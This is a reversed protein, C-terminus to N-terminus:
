WIIFFVLRKAQWTWIRYAYRGTIVALGLALLGGLFTGGHPLAFLGGLGLLLTWGTWLLGYVLRRGHGYPAPRGTGPRGAGESGVPSLYASAPGPGFQGPQPAASGGPGPQYGGGQPPNPPSGPRASNRTDNM